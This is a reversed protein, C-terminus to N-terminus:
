PGRLYKLGTSAKEFWGKAGEAMRGWWSEGAKAAGLSPTEVVAKGFYGRFIDANRDNVQNVKFGGAPARNVYFVRGEAGQVIFPKANERNALDHLVHADFGGGPLRAVNWHKYAVAPQVSVSQGLPLAPPPKALLQRIQKATSPPPAARAPQSWPLKWNSWWSPKEVGAQVPPTFSRAAGNLPTSSKVRVPVMGQQASPPAAAAPAENLEPVLDTISTSPGARKLSDRTPDYPHLPAVAPEDEPIEPMKDLVRAAAAVQALMALVALQLVLCSRTSIVLM